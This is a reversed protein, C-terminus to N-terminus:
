HIRYTEAGLQYGKNLMTTNYSCCMRRVSEERTSASCSKMFVEAPRQFFNQLLETDRGRDAKEAETREKWLRINVAVTGDVISFEQSGSQVHVFYFPFFVQQGRELVKVRVRATVYCHVLQTFCPLLVIKSVIRIQVLHQDFHVAVVYPCEFTGVSGAGQRCLRNDTKKRFEKM